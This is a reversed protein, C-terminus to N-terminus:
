ERKENNDLEIDPVKSPGKFGNGYNEELFKIRLLCKYLCYAEELTYLGNKLGYEMALEIIKVSSKNSITEIYEILKSQSEFEILGGFIESKM